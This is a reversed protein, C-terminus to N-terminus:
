EEDGEKPLEIRWSRAKSAPRDRLIQETEGDDITGDDREPMPNILVGGLGNQSPPSASTTKTGSTGTRFVADPNALIKGDKDRAQVHIHVSNAGTNGSKGIVTDPTVKDGIKVYVKSSHLFQIQTGDQLKVTITNYTGKGARVVEGNIGAKFDMPKSSTSGTPRTSIDVGQHKVTVEGAKPVYGPQQTFPYHAPQEKLRHGDEDAKFVRVVPESTRVNGPPLGLRAPTIVKDDQRQPQAAARLGFSASVAICLALRIGFVCKM